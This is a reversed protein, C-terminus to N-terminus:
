HREPPDRHQASAEQGGSRLGTRLDPVIAIEGPHRDPVFASALSLSLM